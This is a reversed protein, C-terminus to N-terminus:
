GSGFGFKKRADGDSSVCKLKAMSVTRLEEPKEIVLWASSGGKDGLTWRSSFAGVPAAFNSPRTSASAGTQRCSRAVSMKLASPMCLSSELVVCLLQVSVASKYVEPSPVVTLMSSSRPVKMISRSKSELESASISKISSGDESNSQEGARCSMLRCETTEERSLWSPVRVLRSRDFVRTEQDLCVLPQAQLRHGAM